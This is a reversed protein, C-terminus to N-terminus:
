QMKPKIGKIDIEVQFYLDIIRKLIFIGMEPSQQM